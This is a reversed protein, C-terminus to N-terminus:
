LSRLCSKIFFFMLAATLAQRLLHTTTGPVTSILDEQYFGSDGVLFFAHELLCGLEIVKWVAAFGLQLRSVVERRNADLTTSALLLRRLAFVAAGDRATYQRFPATNLRRVFAIGGEGM